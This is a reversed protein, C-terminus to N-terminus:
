WYMLLAAFFFFDGNLIQCYKLMGAADGTLQLLLRTILTSQFSFYNNFIIITESHIVLVESGVVVFFVRNMCLQGVCVSFVFGLFLGGSVNGPVM